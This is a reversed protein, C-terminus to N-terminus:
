YNEKNLNSLYNPDPLHFDVKDKTYIILLQMLIIIVKITKLPLLHNGKINLCKEM